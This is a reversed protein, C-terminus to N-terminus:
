SQLASTHEESRHLLTVSHLSSMSVLYISTFLIRLINLKLTPVLSSNTCNYIMRIRGKKSLSPLHLQTVSHLSSMSVLIFVQAYCDESLINLKLTPVLSSNTCNYFM